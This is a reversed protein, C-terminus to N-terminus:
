KRKIGLISLMFSSFITQVGLIILTLALISNEVQNLSGFNTNLWKILIILYISIGALILLFGFISAKEITIKKYIREILPNKEKLNNIAYTKAFLSFIMLQYGIIVLLSSVFMPHFYFTIGFIEPNLFYLFIMSEIGILFLIFGPFFFLFLPSYLLMFRLHRWADSFSKLKSKGKRKYYNIPIQKIKLKNKISKIVMESAFEMGTTQLNLKNLSSKKIARMGCHSDQIRTKFFLRLIGSLIPNGFYKHSFPMSNKEMKGKFRNGIVFDYNKELEKIFNPIQEFDYTEDSDIMIIYKGKVKEFGKLYASGYGRKQQKFVKINALNKQKNKSHQKIKNKIIQYSKDTSNNDIIIIEANLKNQKVVKVAKEICNGISKEENLCPMIISILPNTVM